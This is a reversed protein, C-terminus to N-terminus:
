DTPVDYLENGRVPFGTQHNNENFKVAFTQSEPHNILSRSILTVKISYQAAIM